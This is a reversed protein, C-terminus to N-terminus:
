SNLILFYIYIVLTLFLESAFSRCFLARVKKKQPEESEESSSDEDVDM